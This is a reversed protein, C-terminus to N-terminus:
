FERGLERCSRSAYNDGVALRDGDSEGSVILARRGECPTAAAVPYAHEGGPSQAMEPPLTPGRRAGEEAHEASIM